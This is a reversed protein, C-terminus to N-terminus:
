IEEAFIFDWLSELLHNFIGKKVYQLYTPREWGQSFQNSHVLVSPVINPLCGKPMM